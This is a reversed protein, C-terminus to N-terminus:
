SNQKKCTYKNNNNAIKYGWTSELINTDPSRTINNTQAKKTYIKRSTFQLNIIM